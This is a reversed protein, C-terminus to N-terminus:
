RWNRGRGRSSERLLGTRQTAEGVDLDRQLLASSAEADSRRRVSVRQADVARRLALRLWQNAEAFRLTGPGDDNIAIPLTTADNPRYM